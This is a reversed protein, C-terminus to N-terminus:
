PNCYDCRSPDASGIGDQRLLEQRFNCSSCGWIEGRQERTARGCAACPLGPLHEIASFGPSGCQPCSSLLKEALNNAAKGINVMREPNAHARLDREVFIKADGTAIKKAWAFATRLASWNDLGKRLLPTNESCPRLVLHQKPFGVQHAFTELENWTCVWCQDSSAPGQHIGVVEIKRIDDIFLLLEINWPFLGTYPDPGFSGESALGLSAGSLQMGIRAKRRAADLQTGYRPIEHTFTGLEDTDFGDVRRVKCNLKKDFLPAVVHEKGHQTLFAIEQGAYPNHPAQCGHLSQQKGPQEHEKVDPLM